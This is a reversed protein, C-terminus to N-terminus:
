PSSTGGSQVQTQLQAVVQPNLKMAKSLFANGERNRGANRLLIGFYYYSEVLNPNLKLAAKYHKAAEDIAGSSHLTIALNHHTLAARPDAELSERFHKIAEQTRGLMVLGSALNYHAKADNPVAQLSEEFCAVAETVRQAQLLLLGRCALVDATGPRKALSRDFQELAEQPRNADAMAKGLCYHGYWSDPNLQVVRTFLAISDRWMQTQLSTAAALALCAAGSAIKLAVRGRKPLRDLLSAGGWVIAILLGLQPFYMYRDAIQQEGVQLLGIVPVLTGLFWFWGVALWPWRTRQAVAVVSIAILLVLAAAGSSWTLADGPHLYYAALDSPWFTKRLYLIYAIPTNLLRLSLPIEDLTRIAGGGRQAVIVAVSALVSLGFLPLKESILPWADRAALLFRERPTRGSSDLQNLRNLPWYDLLLLVCPLTVLMQKSLLTLVFAGIMAIYWLHRKQHVYHVYCLMTLLGFFTSLLEKRESVWAVAEVHLPHIGFLLAVALSLWRQGTLEIMLRAVLWTILGHLALNTTHFVAASYGFLEIELLWSWWTLPHWNCHYFTTAAWRINEISLGQILREAQGDKELYITDDLEVLGFTWVPVYVLVAVVVCFLEPGIRKLLSRWDGSRVHEPVSATTSARMQPQM